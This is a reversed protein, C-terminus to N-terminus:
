LGCCRLRQRSLPVIHPTDMKLREKPIEWRARDLDFEPWEAEILESTRVLTYALLRMAFKTIGTGNYNNIAALLAPIEKADVRALTGQRLNSSSTRHNSILLPIGNPTGTPLQM